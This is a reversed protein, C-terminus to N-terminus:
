STTKQFAQRRALLTEAPSEFLIIAFIMWAAFPMRGRRGFRAFLSLFYVGHESSILGFFALSALNVTETGAHLGLGAAGNQLSATETAALAQGDSKPFLLSLRADTEDQGFATYSLGSCFNDIRIGCPCFSERATYPTPTYLHWSESLPSKRM